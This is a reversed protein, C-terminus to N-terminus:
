AEAPTPTRALDARAERVIRHEVYFALFPVLGAAVMLVMKQLQWGARRYLDFATVLYVMYLIGHTPSIVASAGPKDWIYRLPVAVFVLILLMVGVILAMIRYRKIAAEM